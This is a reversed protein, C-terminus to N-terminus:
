EKFFSSFTKMLLYGQSDPVTECSVSIKFKSKQNCMKYVEFFQDSLSLESSWVRVSNIELDQYHQKQILPKNKYKEQLFQRKATSM